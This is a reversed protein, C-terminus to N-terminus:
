QIALRCSNGNCILDAELVKVRKAVDAPLSDYADASIAGHNCYFVIVKNTPLKSIDISKKEPDYPVNIAGKIHASNYQDTPRVDILQVGKPVKYRNILPVIWRADVRSPDDPSLFLKAGQVSIPKGTPKYPKDDCRCPKPASMVPLKHRKWESYGARYVMLDTYGAKAFKEALKLSKGCEFGNCFIVLPADKRVPYWKRMRKFRKLPISVARMITGKAYMDADRADIFLANHTNYRAKAEDLDIIRYSAAHIGILLLSLVIIYRM